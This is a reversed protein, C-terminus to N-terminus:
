GIKTRPMTRSTNSQYDYTRSYLGEPAIDIDGDAWTLVGHDISFDNFVERNAFPKFVDYQLLESADFLRTEGTSFTVLMCLDDVIKADKVKIFDVPTSAHIHGDIVYM